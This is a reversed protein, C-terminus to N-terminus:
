LYARGRAAALAGVEYAARGGRALALVRCPAHYPDAWPARALSQVVGLPLASERCRGHRLEQM